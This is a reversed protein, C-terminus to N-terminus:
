YALAPRSTCLPPTPTPCALASMDDADPTPYLVCSIIADHREAWAFACGKALAHSKHVSGALISGSLPSVGGPRALPWM